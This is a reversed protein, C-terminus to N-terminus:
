RKNQRYYEYVIVSAAIAANLSEADENMPIKIINDCKKLTDEKVGNAENGIIILQKGSLSAEYLGVSDSRLAGASCKYGQGKFYSLADDTEVGCIVPLSFMGSMTARVVKPNYLECCGKTLIVGDCYAAHATRIVTGINGPDQLAECLIVCSKEGAGIDEFSKEMFACVAMIGQPTQTDSLESFLKPAFTYTPYNLGESINVGDKVIIYEIPANKKAADLVSRLGEIVFKKNEERGHKTKLAKVLKFIKNERSTIIM